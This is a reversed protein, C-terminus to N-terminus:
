ADPKVVIVPMDAELILTQTVSGLLFKGVPSRRRAGIVLLEANVKDALELVKPAVNSDAVDLHLQWTVDHAGVATLSAEIEDTLGSRYADAVDLDLAEVIHIVALDTQRLFAERAAERLAIHKAASSAQHALAVTV